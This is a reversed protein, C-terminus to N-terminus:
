DDGPPQMLEGTDATFRQASIADLDLKLFRIVSLGVTRQTIARDLEAGLAILQAQVEVAECQTVGLM